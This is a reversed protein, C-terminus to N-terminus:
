LKFSNQSGQFLNTQKDVVIDIILLLYFKELVKFKFQFYIFGAAKVENGSCAERYNVKVGKRSSRRVPLLNKSINRKKVKITKPEKTESDFDEKAEILKEWMMKQEAINNERLKEWPSLPEQGCSM